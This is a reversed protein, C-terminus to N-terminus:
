PTSSPAFWREKPAYQKRRDGGQYFERTERRKDITKEKLIREEPIIWTVKHIDQDQENWTMRKEDMKETTEELRNTCIKKGYKQM